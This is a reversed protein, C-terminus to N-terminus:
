RVSIRLAIRNRAESKLFKDVQLFSRDELETLYQLFDSPIFDSTLIRHGSDDSEPEVDSSEVRRFILDWHHRDEILYIDLQASSAQYLLLVLYM